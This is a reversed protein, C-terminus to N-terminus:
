KALTHFELITFYFSMHENEGTLVGFNGADWEWAVGWSLYYFEQYLQLPFESSYFSDGKLGLNFLTQARPMSRNVQVKLNLTADTNSQAGCWGKPDQSPPSELAFGLSLREGLNYLSPSRTLNWRINKEGSNHLLFKFGSCLNLNTQITLAITKGTGMYSHLNSWLSSQASFFPHKQVTTSSFVRSLLKSQLSILDTLGLSFWGQINMPFVSASTSIGISQGDSLFLWGM